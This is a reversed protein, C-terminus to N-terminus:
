STDRIASQEAYKTWLAIMYTSLEQREDTTLADNLSEPFDGDYGYNTDGDENIGLTGTFAYLRKGTSFVVYDDDIKM